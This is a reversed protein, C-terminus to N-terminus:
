ILDLRTGNAAVQQAQAQDPCFLLGTSAEIEFMFNINPQDLDWINNNNVVYGNAVPLDGRNGTDWNWVQQGIIPFPWAPGEFGAWAAAQGPNRGLDFIPAHGAHKLIRYYLATAGAPMSEIKAKIDANTLTGTNDTWTAVNGNDDWGYYAKYYPDYGTPASATPSVCTYDSWNRVATVIGDEFDVIKWNTDQTTTDYLDGDSAWITGKRTLYYKYGALETPFPFNYYLQLGVTPTTTGIFSGLNAIWNPYPNTTSGVSNQYKAAVTDYATQWGSPSGEIHGFLSTTPTSNYYMYNNIVASRTLMSGSIQFFQAPELDAPDVPADPDPGGPIGTYVPIAPEPNRAAIVITHGHRDNYAIGTETTATSLYCGHEEGMLWRQGNNDEFIVIMDNSEALEILRARTTTDHTNSVFRLEQNYVVTGNAQNIEFVEDFTGTVRPLDITYWPTVFTDTAVDSYLANITGNLETAGDLPGNALYIKRIGGQSRNCPTTINNNIRCSM